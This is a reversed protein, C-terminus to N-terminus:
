GKTTKKLLLKLSHLITQQDEESFQGTMEDIWQKRIKLNGSVMEEGQGTLCIKRIRRDDHDSIREVLGREVLREVIQSAAASDGPIFGKVKSMECTGMYHLHVLINIQPMSLGSEKTFQVFDAISRRGFFEGCEYLTQIFEEKLSM